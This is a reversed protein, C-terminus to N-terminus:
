KRRSTNSRTKSRTQRYGRRLTKRRKAGGEVPHYNGSRGEEEAPPPSQLRKQVETKTRLCIANKVIYQLVDLGVIGEASRLAKRLLTSSVPPPPPLLYTKKSLLVLAAKISTDASTMIDHFSFKQKEGGLTIDWPAAKQFQM